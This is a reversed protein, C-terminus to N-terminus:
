VANIGLELAPEIDKKLNDGVMTVQKPQKGLKNLISLLFDPSGKEIGINAKCFYGSIYKDLDVRNFAINIDLENSDAAGTVVYVEAHKSIFRLADEAGEVAEVVEWNCMNGSVGSFDVMLTDGWEFLYVETM